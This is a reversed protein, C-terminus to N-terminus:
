RSKVWENLAAAVKTILTLDTGTATQRFLRMTPYWPSDTRDLLWRFDANYQLLVWAPKTLAGALHAVSTDISIVLDLNEIVAATDAFDNLEESLDTMRMGPPLPLKAAPGKQLSFFQVGTIQSFPILIDLNAARPLNGAPNFSAGAWVLGVKLGPGTLRPRWRELYHPPAHLYPVTAPINTLDTKFIRPLSAVSIHYDFNPLPDGRAMVLEPGSIDAFLPLLPPQCELILRGGRNGLLPVYRVFQISDGYGGEGHLLLTKGTLDQGNWQPQPFDRGLLQSKCKTRWEIEDWGEPFQGVTLLALGLNWHMEPEQPKLQLARRHAAIAEDFRHAYQCATALNSHIEAIDAGCEIARRFEPIADEFRLKAAFAAGLHAHLMPLNPQLHIARQLIEIAEEPAGLRNLTAGLAQMAELHNPNGALIQRCLRQAEPYKGAQYLAVVLQMAQDLHIQTM